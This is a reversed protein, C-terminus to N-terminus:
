KKNPLKKLKTQKKQLTNYMAPIYIAEEKLIKDDFLINVKDGNNKANVIDSKEADVASFPISGPLQNDQIEKNIQFKTGDPRQFIYVLDKNKEKELDKIDKNKAYMNIPLNVTAKGFREMKNFSQITGATPFKFLKEAGTAKDFYKMFPEGSAYHLVQGVKSNGIYNLAQKGGGVIANKAKQFRSLQPYQAYLKDIKSAVEAVKATTEAGKIPVIAEEGLYKVLPLSAITNMGAMTANWVGPENYLDKYSQWTDPWMSVGTPDVLQLTTKAILKKKENELENIQMLANYQPTGPIEWSHVRKKWAGRGDSLTSWERESDVTAFEPYLRAFAGMGAATQQKEPNWGLESWWYDPSGPDASNLNPNPTIYPNEFEFKEKQTVQTPKTSGANIDNVLSTATPVSDDSYITAGKLRQKERWSDLNEANQTYFNYGGTNNSANPKFPTPFKKPTTVVKKTTGAKQTSKNKENIMQVALGMIDYNPDITTTETTAFGGDDYKSLWGGNKYTQNQIFDNFSKVATKDFSRPNFFPSYVPKKISTEKLFTLPETNSNTNTVYDPIPRTKLANTYATDNMLRGITAVATQPNITTTETTSFGGTAYKNLWGGNQMKIMGGCKHCTMPDKGGDVADWSWGCNSCTVKRSLLGGGNKYEVRQTMSPGYMPRSHMYEGAEKDSMFSKTHWGGQVDTGETPDFYDVKYRGQQIPPINLRPMERQQIQMGTTPEGMPIKTAPVFPRPKLKPEPPTIPKPKIQPKPKTKLIYPQVPKKYVPSIAETSDIFNGIPKINPHYLDPSTYFNINKPDIGLSLYYKIIKESNKFTRSNGYIKKFDNLNKASSYLPEENGYQARYQQELYRKMSSNKELMINNKFNRLVKSREVQKISGQSPKFQAFAGDRFDHAPGLNKMYDYGKYLNLSDTYNQVKRPDDTYIPPNTKGDGPGPGGDKYKSLWDPTNLDPISIDGGNAYVSQGPKLDNGSVTKIKGDPTVIPFYGAKRDESIAQKFTPHFPAKLIEGTQPNRSTAHYYGDDQKPQTYDFTNPKGLANWYGRINYDPTDKRLNLPLTRFFQQFALEDDGLGQGGMAKNSLIDNNYNRYGYIGVAGGAEKSGFYKSFAPDSQLLKLDQNYLSEYGPAGPNYKRVGGPKNIWQSALDFYSANKDLQKVNALKKQYQALLNPHAKLYDNVKNQDDVWFNWGRKDKNSGIGPVKRDALFRELKYPRYQEDVNWGSVLDELSGARDAGTGVGFTSERSILAALKYPDMKNAAGVKKVYDLLGTDVDAGTLRGKTLKITKGSYPVKYLNPHSKRFNSYADNYLTSMQDYATKEKAPTAETKTKDDDGIFYGVAKRVGNMIPNNLLMPGLGFNPITTQTTTNFGGVDMRPAVYGSQNNNNPYALIGGQKAPMLFGGNFFKLIPDAMVQPKDTNQKVRYKNFNGQPMNDLLNYTKKILYKLYCKLM